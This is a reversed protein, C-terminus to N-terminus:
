LVVTSGGTEGSASSVTVNGSELMAGMVQDLYGVALSNSSFMSHKSSM